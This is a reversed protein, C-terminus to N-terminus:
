GIVMYKEEDRREKKECQGQNKKDLVRVPARGFRHSGVSLPMGDGRFFARLGARPRVAVSFSVSAIPLYQHSFFRANRDGYGSLHSTAARIDAIEHGLPESKLIDVSFDEVLGCLLKAHLRAHELVM